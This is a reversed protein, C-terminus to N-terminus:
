ISDLAEAFEDLRIGTRATLVGHVRQYHEKSEKMMEVVEPKLGVSDVDGEMTKAFDIIRRTAAMVEFYEIDTVEVGSHETYIALIPDRFMEGGFTTYLLMTWGLDMRHDGIRSASWDIVAESDDERLMVNMGHYDMHLLSLPVLDIHPKRETLWGVVPKLWSLQEQATRGYWELNDQVHDDHCPLDPVDKFTTVDLRHLRVFLRILHTLGKQLEEPTENRYAADLTTGLIREMLIFPKGIAAGSVEHSYVLPVPYGVEGLKRMLSYEKASKRGANDGQFVRLVRHEKIQDGDKTSDVELTYLETEWGMKIEALNTVSIESREPYLSELYTILRETLRRENM